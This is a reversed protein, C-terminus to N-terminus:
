TAGPAPTAVLQVLEFGAPLPTDTALAMLVGRLRERREEPTWAPHAGILVGGDPLRFVPVPDCPESRIADDRDSM